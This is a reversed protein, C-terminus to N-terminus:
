EYHNVYRFLEGAAPKTKAGDGEELVVGAPGFPDVAGDALASALTALTSTLSGLAPIPAARAMAHLRTSLEAFREPEVDGTDHLDRAAALLDGPVTWHADLFATM